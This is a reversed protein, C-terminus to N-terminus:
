VSCELVALVPRRRRRRVRALRVSTHGTEAASGEVLGHDAGTPPPLTREAVTPKTTTPVFANCERNYSGHMTYHPLSLIGLFNAM